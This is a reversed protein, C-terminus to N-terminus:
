EITVSYGRSRHMETALRMLRDVRKETAPHTSFLELLTTGRFPNVIYLHSTAPNGEMPHRRVIQEIKQLANALAEPKGSLRGGGEDAAYERGRSIALQVLTAAIPAFIMIALIGLINSQGREQDRGSFGGFYWGWRAIYVIAGAFTAAVVQTLTDWNRIHALEHSLVGEIEPETMSRLLGTHVCIAAHSPNRGTAFANPTPNDVVAVRPKPIGARVALKDVIAHLQPAEVPSVVRARTMMLVFRDSFWYILLNMLAAMFLAAIPNIGFFWAVVLLIATLIAFLLTTKFINSGFM